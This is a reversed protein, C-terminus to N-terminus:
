EAQGDQRHGGESLGQGQRLVRVHHLATGSVEATGRSQIHATGAGRLCEHLEIEGRQGAADRCGVYGVRRQGHKHIFHSRCTRDVERHGIARPGFCGDVTVIKRYGTGSDGAADANRRGTRVEIDVGGVSDFCPECAGGVAAEDDGCVISRHTDCEVAFLTGCCTM